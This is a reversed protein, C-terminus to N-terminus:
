NNGGLTAFEAFVSRVAEDIANPTFTAGTTLSQSGDYTTIDLGILQQKYAEVDTGPYGDKWYEANFYFELIDIKVIKGTSDLVFTLDMVPDGSFRNVTKAQYAYYTVGEVTFTAAATVSSFTNVTLETLGGVEVGHYLNNTIKGTLASYTSSIKKGAFKVAEAAVDAYNATVNELTYTQTAADLLKAKYVAVTGSANVVALLKVGDKEARFVINSKNKAQTARTIYTAGTVKLESSKNTVFGTVVTSLLEDFVLDADKEQAQMLGNAALVLFSASVAEKITNSSITAKSTIEIDALNSDKGEFSTLTGESVPFDEENAFVVSVGTVLGDKNIGVTVTVVDKMPANTKSAVVVYGKGSTEKHVASVGSAADITLTSTIEEFGTAEPFVELLVGAAQQAAAEERAIRDAEIKPGTALNLALSSGVTAGIIVLFLIVTKVLDKTLM